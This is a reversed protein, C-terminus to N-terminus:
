FEDIASAGSALTLICCVPGFSRGVYLFCAFVRLLLALELQFVTVNFPEIIFSARVKKGAMDYLIHALNTDFIGNSLPVSMFLKM